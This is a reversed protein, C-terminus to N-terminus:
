KAHGLDTERYLLQRQLNSMDVRDFDNLVLRGVGASALYMAAPSGLGGLGVLLVSARALREQGATGFEPLALHRSYRLKWDPDGVAMPPSVAAFSPNYRAGSRSNVARPLNGHHGDPTCAAGRPSAMAAHTSYRFNKAPNTAMRLGMPTMGIKM